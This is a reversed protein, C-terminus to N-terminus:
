GGIRLSPGGGRADVADLLMDLAVRVSALRIEDRGLNGFRRVARTVGADDRACAFHVLGVPKEPTGGGPGAIGTVAVAIHAKARKRAGAAMEGVTEASVAGHAKLTFPSVDLLDIKAEDAYTVFGYDFIASSGDISTIAAALLGGTCSEAVSVRVGAAQATAVLERARQLIDRPFVTM